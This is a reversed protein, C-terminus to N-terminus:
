GKPQVAIKKPQAEPKKPITITVTGNACTAAVKEADVGVPLPISRYFSGVFRETRHYNKRKEEKKEEKSGRVTLVNDVVQIDVDKPEVGPLDAKVLFEKETEEIDVQPAWPKMAKGNSPDDNFFRDVLDAMENRFSEFPYLARRYPTLTTSM